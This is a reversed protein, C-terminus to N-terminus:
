DLEAVALSIRGLFSTAGIKMLFSNLEQTQLLKKMSGFVSSQPAVKCSQTLDLTSMQFHSADHVLM